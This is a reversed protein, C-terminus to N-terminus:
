RTSHFTKRHTKACAYKLNALKRIFLQEFIHEYNNWLDFWITSKSPNVGKLNLCKSHGKSTLIVHGKKKTM